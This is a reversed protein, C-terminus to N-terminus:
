VFVNEKHRVAEKMKFGQIGKVMSDGLIETTSRKKALYTMGSVAAPTANMDANSSINENNPPQNIIAAQKTANLPINPKPKPKTPKFNLFRPVVGHDRCQIFCWNHGTLGTKYNSSYLSCTYKSKNASSPM